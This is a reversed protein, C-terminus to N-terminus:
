ENINSLRELFICSKLASVFYSNRKQRRKKKSTRGGESCFGIDSIFGNCRTPHVPPHSKALLIFDLFSISLPHKKKIVKKKSNHNRLKTKLNIRVQFHKRM